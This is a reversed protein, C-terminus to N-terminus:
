TVWNYNSNTGCLTLADMHFWPKKLIGKSRDNRYSVSDQRTMFKNWLFTSLSRRVGPHGVGARVAWSTGASQGGTKLKEGWLGAGTGERKGGTPFEWEQETM